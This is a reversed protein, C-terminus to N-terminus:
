RLPFHLEKSLAKKNGKFSNIYEKVIKSDIKEDPKDLWFYRKEFVKEPNAGYSIYDQISAVAKGWDSFVEGSHQNVFEVGIKINNDAVKSITLEIEALTDDSYNRGLYEEFNESIIGDILEPNCDLFAEYYRRMVEEVLDPYAELTHLVDERVEETLVRMRDSEFKKEGIEDYFPKPRMMLFEPIKMHEGPEDYFVSDLRKKFRESAEDAKAEAEKQKAEENKITQDLLDRTLEVTKRMPDEEEEPEKSAENASEETKSEAEKTESESEKNSDEAKAEEALTEEVEDMIEAEAESELRKEKEELTEFEPEEAKTKEAKTEESKTEEEAEADKKEIGDVVEPIDRDRNGVLDTFFSRKKSEDKKSNKAM